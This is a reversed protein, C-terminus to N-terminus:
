PHVLRRLVLTLAQSSFLTRAPRSARETDLRRSIKPPPIAELSLTLCSNHSRVNTFESSIKTWENERLRNEDVDNADFDENAWPVDDIDSMLSGM